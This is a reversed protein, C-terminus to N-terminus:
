DPLHKKPGLLYIEKEITNAYSLKSRIKESQEIRRADFRNTPMNAIIELGKVLDLISDPQALFSLNQDIFEPVACTKTSLIALGAGAAECVSMGQTEYRTPSLYIQHKQFFKQISLSSIPGEIISVNDIESLSRLVQPFYRGFGVITFKLRAADPRKNWAEIAGIVQDGAYNLRDFNKIVLVQRPAGDISPQENYFSESLFNPIVSSKSFDGGTDVTAVDRLFESVFVLRDPCSEAALLLAAFRKSQLIELSKVDRKLEDISFNFHLRFYDRCDYGHFVCIFREHPVFKVFSVLLDPAPSHLMFQSLKLTNAASVIQQDTCVEVDIGEYKWYSQGQTNPSRSIVQVNYGMQKLVIARRHVFASPFHNTDDPYHNSVLFITDRESEPSIDKAPEVLDFRPSPGQILNDRAKEVIERKLAYENESLETLWNQTSGSDKMISSKLIAEGRNKASVVKESLRDFWSKHENISRFTLVYNKLWTVYRQSLDTM